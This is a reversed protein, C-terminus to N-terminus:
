EFDNQADRSASYRSKKRHTGSEDKVVNSRRKREEQVATFVDRPIIAPHADTILYGGSAAPDGKRRGQPKVIRVDGIYKENSLIKELAKKSGTDKDKATKVAETAM